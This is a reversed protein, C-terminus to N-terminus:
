SRKQWHAPDQRGHLALVIIAEATTGFYIAYPFRQLVARRTEGRVRQFAFPNAAIRAIMQDVEVAFESGLGERRADYWRQVDLAEAEAEPRFVVDRTM